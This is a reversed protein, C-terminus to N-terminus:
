SGRTDSRNGKLGMTKTKSAEKSEPFAEIKDQFLGM